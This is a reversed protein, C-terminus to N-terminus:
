LLNRKNSCLGRPRGDDTTWRGGADRHRDGTGSRAREGTNRLTRAPTREIRMLRCPGQAVSLVPPSIPCPWFVCRRQRRGDVDDTTAGPPACPEPGRISQGATLARGDMVVCCGGFDGWRPDCLPDPHLIWPIGPGVQAAKGEGSTREGAAPERVARRMVLRWAARLVCDHM